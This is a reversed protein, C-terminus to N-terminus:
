WCLGARHDGAHPYGRSTVSRLVSYRNSVQALKPLHESYIVRGSLNKKLLKASFKHDHLEDIRVCM